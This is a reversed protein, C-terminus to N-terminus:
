KSTEVPRAPDTIWGSWSEAYLAPEDFGSELLALVNHAATVGSGCYCVIDGHVGLVEFRERLQDAPLFKGGKINYTFPANVAGPIHGAVADIPDKRGSFRDADRADLLVRSKDPLENAYCLKTLTPSLEFDGKNPTKSKGHNTKGGANVWAALGGNLVRVSGHGIWRLMWWLRAAFIGADQDYCVVRSGRNLGWTRAMEAFAERSPLPHRGRNNSRQSLDRNLDVHIAGPIHKKLYANRGYDSNALDFTCDLVLDAGLERLDKPEILFSM